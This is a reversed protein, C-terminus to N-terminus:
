VNGLCNNLWFRTIPRGFSIDLGLLMFVLFCIVSGNTDIKILLIRIVGAWYVFCFSSM